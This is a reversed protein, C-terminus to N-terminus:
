NTTVEVSDLMKYFLGDESEPLLKLRGSIVVADYNYTVPIKAEVQIMLNPGAPLCFSCDVPLPSLIFRAQKDNPDLPLMFGKVKIVKGDLALVQKDYAPKIVVDSGKEIVVEKSLGIVTWPIIDGTAEPFLEEMLKLARLDRDNPDWKIEELALAPVTLVTALLALAALFRKSLTNM